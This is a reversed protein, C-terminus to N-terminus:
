TKIPDEKWALDVDMRFAFYTKKEGGPGGIYVEKPQEQPTQDEKSESLTMSKLYFTHTGVPPGMEAQKDVDDLSKNDAVAGGVEYDDYKVEKEDFNGDRWDDGM